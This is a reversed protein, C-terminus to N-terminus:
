KVNQLHAYLIRSQLHMSIEDLGCHSMEVRVKHSPTLHGTQTLYRDVVFTIIDQLSLVKKHQKFKHSIGDYHVIFHTNDGHNYFM